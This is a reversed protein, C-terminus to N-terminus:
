DCEFSDDVPRCLPPWGHERWYDALGVEEVHNRFYETQRFGALGSTWLRSLVNGRRLPDFRSILENAGEYDGLLIRDEIFYPGLNNWNDDIGDPLPPEHGPMVGAKLASTVAEAYSADVNNAKLWEAYVANANEYDGLDLYAMREFIPAFQYGIDRSREAYELARHPEDNTMYILSTYGAISGNNPDIDYANLIEALAEQVRGTDLLFISYWHHPTAEGPNLRIAAQYSEEAAAWNERSQAITALVANANSSEPNIALSQGAYKEAQVYAAAADMNDVYGPMVYYAAALVAYAQAFEPDIEIVRELRAVSEKLADANRQRWLHKGQLYLEFAELNETQRPAPTMAVAEGAGLAVTLATVIAHAIEDQIAFIDRLEREYTEAWLHRDTSVDILEATIRVKNESRRVSGEIIHKVHLRKGIEPLGLDSGKYQFSTTRPKVKFERVRALVNLLEEALGDSFYENEPDDSMNIFPLVAVSNEAPPTTDYPFEPEGTDTLVYVDIVLVAVAVVLFCFTAIDLMRGTHRTISQEIQVDKARKLGEPTIEWTWAFILAFPFGLALVFMVLPMAWPPDGLTPLVLGAVQYLLWSIVVYLVGVKFLNRRKLEFLVEGFELPM